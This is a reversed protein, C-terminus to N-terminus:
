FSFGGQPVNSTASFEIEGGGSAPALNPDEDEQLLLGLHSDFM